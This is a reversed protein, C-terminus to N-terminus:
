KNENVYIFIRSQIIDAAEAATKEGDFYPATEEAMINMIADDYSYIHEASDIFSLVRECDQQTLPDLLSEM